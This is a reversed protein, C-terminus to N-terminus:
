HSGQVGLPCAEAALPSRGSHMHRGWLTWAPGRRGCGAGTGQPGGGQQGPAVATDLLEQQVAPEGREGAVEAAARVGAAPDGARGVQRWSTGSSWLWRRVTLWSRRPQGRADRWARYGPLRPNWRRRWWRFLLGSLRFPSRQLDSRPRERSTLGCHWDKNWLCPFPSRSPRKDHPRLLGQGGGAVRASGEGTGPPRRLHHPTPCGGPSNLVRSWTGLAGHPDGKGSACGGRGHGQAPRGPCPTAALERPRRSEPCASFADPRCSHLCEVPQSRTPGAWM